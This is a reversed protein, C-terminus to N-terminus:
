PDIFLSLWLQWNAVPTPLPLPVPTATPQDGAPLPVILIDGPQGQKLEEYAPAVAGQEGEANAVSTQLVTLTAMKSARETSVLDAARQQRRYDSMRDSFDKVLFIVIVIGLVSAIYQWRFPIRNMDDHYELHTRQALHHWCFLGATAPGKPASPPIQVRVPSSWSRGSRLADALEAVEAHLVINYANERM